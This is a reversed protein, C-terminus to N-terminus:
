RQVCHAIQPQPLYHLNAERGAPGLGFEARLHANSYVSQQPTVGGADRLVVESGGNARDIFASDDAFRVTFEIGQDCRYRATAQAAAPQGPTPAPRAPAVPAPVADTVRPAASPSAPAAACGWLAAGAVIGLALVQLWGAMKHERSHRSSM